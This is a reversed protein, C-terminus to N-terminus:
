HLSPMVPFSSVLAASPLELRPPQMRIIVYADSKPIKPLVQKLMSLFGVNSQLPLWPSSVPKLWKWELTGVSLNEPTTKVLQAVTALFDDWVIDVPVNTPGFTLSEQKETKTKRNATRVRKPPQLVYALLEFVAATTTAPVQIAAAPRPPNAAVPQQQEYAPPPAEEDMAQIPTAIPTRLAPLRCHGSRM